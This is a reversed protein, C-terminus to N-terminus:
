YVEELIMEFTYKKHSTQTIKLSNEKLCVLCFQDASFRDKDEQFMVPITFGLSREWVQSIFSDDTNINYTYSGQNDGTTAGDNVDSTLVDSSKLFRYNNVLENSSFVKDQDLMSFKLKYVKRGKMALQRHAYRFGTGPSRLEWPAYGGWAPPATNITNSASGGNYLKQEKTSGFDISTEMELDPALLDFYSGLLVTGVHSSGGVQINTPAGDSKELFCLSWGDYEPAMKKGNAGGLTSNIKETKTIEDGSPSYISVGGSTSGLNHGLIAMYPNEWMSYLESGIEHFPINYEYVQDQVLKPSVPLTRFQDIALSDFGIKEGYEMLNLYFRPQKIGTYSM